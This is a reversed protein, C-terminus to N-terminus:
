RKYGIIKILGCNQGNGALLEDNSMSPAINWFLGSSHSKLLDFAVGASMKNILDERTWTVTYKSTGTDTTFYVVLSNFVKYSNKLLISGGPVRGGKFATNGGYAIIGTNNNKINFIPNSSSEALEQMADFDVLEVDEQQLISIGDYGYYGRRREMPFVQCKVDSIVKNIGYVGATQTNLLSIFYIGYIRGVCAYNNFQLPKTIVSIDIPLDTTSGTVVSVNKGWDLRNASQLFKYNKVVGNGTMNTVSGDRIPLSMKLGTINDTGSSAWGAGDTVRVASIMLYTNTIDTSGLLPYTVKTKNSDSYVNNCAIMNYRNASGSFIVGGNWTDYKIIDGVLLHTTQYYTGSAKVLSFIIISSNDSEGFVVENCYLDYKYRLREYEALYTNYSDLAKLYADYATRYQEMAHLYANYADVRQKYDALTLLYASHQTNYAEVDTNYQALEANYTNMTSDYKAKETNYQTMANDYNSQAQVEKARYEDWAPSTKHVWAVYADNFNALNDYDSVKLVCLMAYVGSGTTTKLFVTSNNVTFHYEYGSYTDSPSAPTPSIDSETLNSIDASLTYPKGEALSILGRGGATLEKAVFVYKGRLSSPVSINDMVLIKAGNGGVNIAPRDGVTNFNSKGDSYKYVYAESRKAPEPPTPVIEKTPPTPPNVSPSTPRTPPTPEVPSDGASAVPSPETPAVPPQQEPLEGNMEPVPMYAGLVDLSDKAVPVNYAYYWRDGGTYDNSVTMGVGRLHKDYFNRHNLTGQVTLDYSGFIQYGNCSRLRIHYSDGKSKFIFRKGDTEIGDYIDVDDQLDEVVTYNKSKVYLSMKELVENPTKLNNYVVFSM